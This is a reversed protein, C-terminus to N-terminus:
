ARLLRSGPDRPPCARRRLAPCARACRARRAEQWQELSARRDLSGRRDLSARRGEFSWSDERQMGAPQGAAAAPAGTAEEQARPYAHQVGEHCTELPRRDISTRRHDVSGRRSSDGGGGGRWADLGGSSSGGAAARCDIPGAGSPSGNAQVSLQMYQAPLDVSVSRRKPKSSYEEEGDSALCPPPHLADSSEEEASSHCPQKPRKLSQKLSSLLGAARHLGGV